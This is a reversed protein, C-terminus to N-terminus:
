VEGKWYIVMSLDPGELGERGILTNQEVYHGTIGEM